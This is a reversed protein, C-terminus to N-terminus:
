CKRYCVVWHMARNQWYAGKAFLHGWSWYTYDGEPEELYHQNVSAKNCSVCAPIPKAMAFSLLIHPLYSGPCYTSTALNECHSLPPLLASHFLSPLFPASPTAPTLHMFDWYNKIHTNIWTSGEQIWRLICLLSPLLCLKRGQEYAMESCCGASIQLRHKSKLAPSAAEQEKCHWINLECCLRWRQEPCFSIETFITLGPLFFQLFGEQMYCFCTQLLRVPNFM